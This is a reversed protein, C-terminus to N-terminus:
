DFATALAPNEHFAFAAFIDAELVRSRSLEPLANFAFYRAELTEHGPAPEEDGDADCLFFLTYFDRVDPNYPHKAKHRVCYLRSAVVALGAEERIEKVINEAPSYGVDAFGGPLTWRRDTKEQVLLVHGDRIVAGRVDVKPTAYGKAFDSVLGEVRAIPVRGLQALMGNAIDAVEFYRERDYPDTTFHLGTSAVAQLRKGWALWQDEM